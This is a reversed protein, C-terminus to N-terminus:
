SAVKGTRLTVFDAPPGPAGGGPVFPPVADVTIQQPSIAGPAQPNYQGPPTVSFGGLVSALTTDDWLRDPNDQPSRADPFPMGEPYVNPPFMQPPRPDNCKSDVKLNDWRTLMESRRFRQGCVDCIFWANGSEYTDAGSYGRLLRFRAM